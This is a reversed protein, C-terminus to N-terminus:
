RPDMRSRFDWTVLSYPQLAIATENASRGLLWRAFGSSRDGLYRDILIGLIEAGREDRLTATAQGRVGRYPITEPAVEFGCRSDRAINKAVRASRQTACWLTDGLRVFWLSVLLPHGKTGNVALRLPVRAEDLFRAIEIEPQSKELAM